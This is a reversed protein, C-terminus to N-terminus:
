EHKREISNQDLLQKLDEPDFDERFTITINDEDFGLETLLPILIRAASQRATEVIGLEPISAIIAERGESEYTSLEKESFYARTISVYEKISKHDVKTSTLMVKPDPLVITIHNGVRWVHHKSFGSFDIYGKLTADMPIIVKRDGLPLPIDFDRDFVSGRLRLQDDYTVIKHVKYETTYLRSCQQIQTILLPLTDVGRWPDSKSQKGCGGLAVALLLTLFMIVSTKRM